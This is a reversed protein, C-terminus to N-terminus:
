KDPPSWPAYTGANAEGVLKAALDVISKGDFGLGDLEKAYNDRIPALKEFLEAEQEPTWQAYKHGFEEEAWQLAHEGFYDVIAGGQVAADIQVAEFAAKLDDPLGEWFKLNMVVFFVDSAYLQPAFVSFDFLEAHKWNELTEAPSVLADITGKQAAEFVDAMPMAIPDANVLKMGETGVGSVRVKKGKLWDIGTVEQKSHLSGPGSPYLYLVHTDALEEPKLENYLDMVAKAMASCSVPPAIGPQSVTQMVPFRKPTYAMSSQGVEVIGNVVGDYIDPGALITGVPFYEVELKYKGGSAQEVMEFFAPYNYLMDGHTPGKESAMRLKIVEAEAPPAETSDTTAETTATTTDTAGATTATTDPTSDGCGAVLLGASLVLLGVLLLALKKM